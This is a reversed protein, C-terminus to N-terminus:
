AIYKLGSQYEEPRHHTWWPLNFPGVRFSKGVHRFGMWWPPVMSVIDGHVNYRAFNSFREKITPLGWLVRPTGFGTGKILVDKFRFVCDEYCLLALASGQSYGAVWINRSKKQMLQTVFAMIYDRVYKWLTVFGRHALWKVPMDKYPEVFFDFNSIWGSTDHTYEFFIYIDTDNSEIRFNVDHITQWPGDLCRQYIASPLGM